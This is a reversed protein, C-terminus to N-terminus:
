PLARFCLTIQPLQQYHAWSACYCVTWLSVLASSSVVTWDIMVYYLVLLKVWQKCLSRVCCWFQCYYYYVLSHWELRQMNACSTFHVYLMCRCVSFNPTSIEVFEIICIHCVGIAVCFFLCFYAHLLVLIWFLVYVICIVVFNYVSWYCCQM